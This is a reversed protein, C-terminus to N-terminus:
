PGFRVAAAWSWVAARFCAALSSYDAWFQLISSLISLTATQPNFFPGAIFSVDITCGKGAALTAPCLSVAVFENSDGGQVISFFPEKITM